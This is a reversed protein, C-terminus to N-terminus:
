ISDEDMGLSYTIIAASILSILAAILGNVLNINTSGLFGLVATFNSVPVLTAVIVNTIGSYLGGIFGGAILGIFPKKYKVCIGYLTPESTGALIQTIAYGFALSKQDKNKLKLAAGIAVGMVAFSSYILGPAAFGDFGVTAFVEFLSAIILMHMGTMVFLSYTAAIIAVGFIGLNNQISILGGVIYNGIIAGAPSLVLLSIPLMVLLTLPPVFVSRISNPVYKNMFSEVYGMVWVSLIVPVISGTYNQLYATVGYVTFPEGSNLIEILSPHILIAGMLIGLVPTVRFKVAASYGVIVPFFYFAADGVFAFLQYLDSEVPLVNLLEPGLVSILMKFFASAVIAPIVPGMTGSLGDLISTGINKLSFKSKSRSTEVVQGNIHNFVKDVDGGIIVQLQKGVKVTGMVGEINKIEDMSINDYDYLTFRLRTACHLVHEINKIGGVADLVNSSLISIKDKSM